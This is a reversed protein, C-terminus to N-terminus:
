TNRRPSDGSAAAAASSSRAALRRYIAAFAAATHDADHATAWDRARHAIAAHLQADDLLRLVGSAVAHANHEVALAGPEALEVFDSVHGVRTGVTPVGCMAAELVALPGADHWSTNLHITSSRYLDALDDPQVFGRFHVADAIGLEIALAQHAGAMTDVGALTFTAGPRAELVIKFAHLALYQDKVTNLSAVQLLHTGTVPVVAPTFRERDAGLPVLEDIRAGAASAHARMWETAATTVTPLRLATRALLRGGRTLSGGYGVQPVAALEGGCLTVVSGVRFRRGLVGAALGTVGAWLGHVVHPRAGNGVIKVSHRVARLVDGRSHQGIPINIVRNGFLQWECPEPDHGIAIVTLEHDHGLRQILDHIFPIIRVSGPPDVGGPVILVV